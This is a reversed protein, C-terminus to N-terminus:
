RKKKLQYFTNYMTSNLVDQSGKRDIFQFDTFVPKGTNLDFVLSYYYTNYKPTVAYYIAYPLL